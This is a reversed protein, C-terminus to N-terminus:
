SINYYMKEDDPKVTYCDKTKNFLCVFFDKEHKIIKTVIADILENEKRNSEMTQFAVRDNDLAGNLNIRHVFYKSKRENDLKIFGLKNSNIRITGEYTHSTDITGNIYGIVLHKSRNLEKLSDLEIMENITENFMNVPIFCNSTNNRITKLLINHPIPYHELSVIEIILKELQSKTIFKKM